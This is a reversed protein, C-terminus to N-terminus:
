SCIEELHRSLKNQNTKVNNETKEIVISVNNFRKRCLIRLIQIIIEAIEFLSVFSLGVFLGLYGGLNSILQTPEIKSQQVISTYKLTKYFIKIMTNTFNESNLQTHISYSFSISDCELPCYDSCEENLNKKNFENLYNSSCERLTENKLCDIFSLPERCGCSNEKLFVLDFCKDFCMRQTYSLSDKLISNIITKNKEFRTFDKLCQNHPEGLKSEITKEITIENQLGLTVLIADEPSYLPITRNHIWIFLGQEPQDIILQLSDFRGGQISNKIPIEHNSMNKGSNFRFCKGLFPLIFSEFHNNPDQQVNPDTDFLANIIQPFTNTFSNYFNPKVSCFSVTPFETPYDLKSEVLTVVEYQYYDRLDVFIYGFAASASAFFFVLWFGKSFKSKRRILNPLGYSTSSEILDFIQKKIM